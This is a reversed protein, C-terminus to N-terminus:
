RENYAGLFVFRETRHELESLLKIVEPDHPDAELDFFFRYEGDLGPMPRSELKCLNIGAIAFRSLVANLSGAEHALNLMISIKRAGPYIECKRSICIFRTYNGPTNAVTDEVVELGYLEACARSAIVAVDDRGCTAAYEAAIATNAMPVPKLQPDREFYASCQRLAQEHSVVERIPGQAGPRRLLKHDIRLKRAAVIYFSHKEMLDYVQTVSGATSNEIPLVGYECMGQEVANFVGDFSNFYLIDPYEFIRECAQQQYAGEIGQCGVLARGPFKKDAYAACAASLKGALASGQEMLASEYNCSLEFILKYLSKIYPAYADGAQETVHNIVARERAHDRIAKGTQRKSMAVEAVTQMREVFLGSLESDIRDIHARIENLEM